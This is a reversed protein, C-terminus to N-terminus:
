SELEEKVKNFNHENEKQTKSSFEKKNGDVTHVNFYYSTPDLGIVLEIAVIAEKRFIFNQIQITKAM